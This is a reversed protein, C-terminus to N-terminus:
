SQLLKSKVFLIRKKMLKLKQKLSVPAKYPYRSHEFQFVEAQRMYTASAKLTKGNESTSFYNGNFSRIMFGHNRVPIYDLHTKENSSESMQVTEDQEPDCYLFNGNSAKLEVKGNGKWFLEFHAAGANQTSHTFTLQNNKVDLNLFAGEKNKIFIKDNQSHQMSESKIEDLGIFQYGMDLLKPILQKVLLHTKNQAKVIDMDAIEDHMVVVGKGKEKIEQLYVDVTEEVTKGLKWFYCDIGPIDWFVPGVFKYSSRLDINLANAVETSWKGYPARFYSIGGKQFPEILQNTRVIQDVIDGDVSVYYPMDPHEFTHNGIIHGMDAMKKLTELQNQAYKGVVFFAARIQHQHLFEAIELSYQGPGDDFTLCLTKDPLDFRTIDQIAFM